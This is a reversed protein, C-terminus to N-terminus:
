APLWLVLASSMTYVPSSGTRTAETESNVHVKSMSKSPRLKEEHEGQGGAGVGRRKWPTEQLDTM